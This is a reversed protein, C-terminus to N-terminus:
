FEVIQDRGNDKARYLASEVRGFFQELRDDQIFETVGICASTNGIDKLLKFEKENHEDSLCDELQISHIKDLIRNAQIMAEENNTSPLLIAFKARDVRALIDDQRSELKLLATIKHLWKDAFEQGFQASLMEFYDIELLILSLPYGHRAVHVMNHTMQLEFGSRNLLGTSMDKQFDNRMSKLQAECDVLSEQQDNFDVLCRRLREFLQDLELESNHTEKAQDKLSGAQNNVKLFSPQTKTWKLFAKDDMTMITAIQQRFNMLISRYKLLMWTGVMLILVLSLLLLAIQPWPMLSAFSKSPLLDLVLFWGESDNGKYQDVGSKKGGFGLDTDDRWTLEIPAAVILYEVGDKAYYSRYSNESSLATSEEPLLRENPQSFELGQIQIPMVEGSARVLRLRQQKHNPLNILHTSHFANVRFNAKLVGLFRDSNLVPVVVGVVFDRVSFDFGRDDIFVRPTGNNFTGQWWYKPKHALTTLKGTTGIMEGFANTVFIEGYGQPFVSQMRKLFSSTPNQLYSSVFKSTESSERWQLDLKQIAHNISESSFGAYQQNSAQLKEILFPSKALTKSLMLLREIRQNMLHAEHTVVKQATEMETQALHQKRDYVWFGINILLILVLLFVGIVVSNHLKGMQFTKLQSFFDHPSASM